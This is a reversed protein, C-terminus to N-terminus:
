ASGGAPEPHRARSALETMVGSLQERAGPETLVGEAGIMRRDVPIRVCSSEVIDAGTYALVVRLTAEAGQGRGAAAATVFAV